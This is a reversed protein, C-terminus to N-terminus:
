GVGDDSILFRTKLTLGTKCRFSCFIDAVPFPLVALRLLMAASSELSVM